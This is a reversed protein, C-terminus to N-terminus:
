SVQDFLVTEKAKTIIKSGNILEPGIAIIEGETPKLVSVSPIRITKRIYKSDLDKSLAESINEKPQRRYNKATPLKLGRKTRTDEKKGNCWQRLPKIKGM